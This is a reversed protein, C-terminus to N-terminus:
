GVADVWCQPNNSEPTGQPGYGTREQTAKALEAFVGRIHCQLNHAVTAALKNRQQLEAASRELAAIRARLASAYPEPLRDCIQGLRVARVDPLHLAQALRALVAGRGQAAHFVEQLLEGERAACSQLGNTDAARLFDLKQRSQETLAKLLRHLEELYGQLEQLPELLAGPSLRTPSRPPEALACNADNM